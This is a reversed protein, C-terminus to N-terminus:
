RDLAESSSIILLNNGIAFVLCCAASACEPLKYDFCFLVFVSVRLGKRTCARACDESGYIYSQTKEVSRQRSEHSKACVPAPASTVVAVWNPKIQPKKQPRTEKIRIKHKQQM